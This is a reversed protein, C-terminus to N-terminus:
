FRNKINYKKFLIVSENKNDKVYLTGLQVEISANKADLKTDIDYKPSWVLKYYLGLFVAAASVSIIYTIVTIVKVWKKNVHNLVSRNEASYM